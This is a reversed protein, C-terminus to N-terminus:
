TGSVKVITVNIIVDIAIDGSLTYCIEVSEGETVDFDTSDADLEIEVVALLLISMKLCSIIWPCPILVHNTSNIAVAQSPWM